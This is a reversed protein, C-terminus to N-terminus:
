DLFTPRKHYIRLSAKNKYKAAEKSLRIDKIRLVLVGRVDKSKAFFLFRDDGFDYQGEGPGFERSALVYGDLDVIEITATFSDVRRMAFKIHGPPNEYVRVMEEPLESLNKYRFSSYLRYYGRRHAKFPIEYTTPVATVAIGKSLVTGYSSMPKIKVTELDVVPPNQKVRPQNAVDPMPNCGMLILTLLISLAIIYLKIVVSQM